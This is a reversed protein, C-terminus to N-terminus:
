ELRNKGKQSLAYEKRRTFKKIYDIKRFRIASWDSDISVQRVGELEYNGLAEWGTDRNFDCKYKKSTKKPYCFWLTADGELKPSLEPVITDIEQKQTVFIIAFEVVNLEQLNTYIEALKEMASLESVFSDPASLCLINKHAKFNLKKFLPTMM